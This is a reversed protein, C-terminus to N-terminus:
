CGIEFPPMDRPKCYWYGDRVCSSWNDEGFEEDCMRSLTNCCVSENDDSTLIAIYGVAMAGFTFGACLLVFIFLNDVEVKEVPKNRGM